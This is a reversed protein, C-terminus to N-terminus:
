DTNPSGIFQVVINDHSFTPTEEPKLPFKTEKLASKSDV